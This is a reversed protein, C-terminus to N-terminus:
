KRRPLAIKLAKAAKLIRRQNAARVELGAVFSTVTRVDIDAKAALRRVDDRTM